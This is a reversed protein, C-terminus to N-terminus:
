RHNLIAKWRQLVDIFAYLPMKVIIENTLISNELYFMETDVNIYGTLDDYGIFTFWKGTVNYASLGEWDWYGGLKNEVFDDMLQNNWNKKVFLLEKLYSNLTEIVNFNSNLLNQLNSYKADKFDIKYSIISYNNLDM